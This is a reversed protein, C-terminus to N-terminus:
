LLGHGNHWYEEEGEMLRWTDRTFTSQSLCCDVVSQKEVFVSLIELPSWDNGRISVYVKM